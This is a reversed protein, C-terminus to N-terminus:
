GAGSLLDWGGGAERGIGALPAHRDHEVGFRHGDEGLAKLDPTHHRPCGKGGDDATHFGCSQDASLPHALVLSVAPNKNGGAEPPRALGPVGAKTGRSTGPM